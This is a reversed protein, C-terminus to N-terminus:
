LLQKLAEFSEIDDIQYSVIKKDIRKVFGSLSKGPGIEVITDVGDGLMYRIIKEFYVPSQLQKEMVEQINTGSELPGGTLNYLIPINVESFNYEKLKEILRDGAPKMLSTHFPGSVNLEITKAGKSKAEDQAKIVEDRTGSIVLQGPCNYNCIEVVGEGKNSDCIAKLEAEEMGMVAYMASNLGKVADAMAKGRFAAIEVAEKPTIIGAASLASYEGLSLGAVYSAKLGSDKLLEYVSTQFLVMAPQNNSTETLTSLDANFCLDKIKGTEDSEDMRNKFVHYKEYFDVGMKERQSGQGAFLVGIKM